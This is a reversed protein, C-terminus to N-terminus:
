FTWDGQPFSAREPYFILDFDWEHRPLLVATAKFPRRPNSIGLPPCVRRRAEGTGHNCRLRQKGEERGEGGEAAVDEECPQLNRQNQRHRHWASPGGRKGPM